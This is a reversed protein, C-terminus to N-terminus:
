SIFTDDFSVEPKKPSTKLATPTTGTKATFKTHSSSSAIPEKKPSTKIRSPSILTKSTSATNNEEDRKKMMALKSSAKVPSLNKKPTPSIVDESKITTPPSSPSGAASDTCSKKPFAAQAQKDDSGKRAQILLVNSIWHWLRLCRFHAQTQIMNNTVKKAQPEEELMALTKAFEEDDHVQKELQTFAPSSLFLM